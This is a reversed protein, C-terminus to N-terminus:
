MNQTCEKGLKSKYIFEIIVNYKCEAYGSPTMVQLVVIEEENLTPKSSSFVQRAVGSDTNFITFQSKKVTQKLIM